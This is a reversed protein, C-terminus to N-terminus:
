ASCTRFGALVDRRDPTYFNRYQNRALRSRTPFAGGRLVRHTGGFWPESYEKYPDASFGPFPEFDSATWEWVNGLMQRCGLASDGAPLLNVAIPETHRLDLNAREATPPEDGWPYRRKRPALSAGDPTPECAAAAEWEAETPLRRGAWRCFADAEFWNVHIVPEHPALPVIDRYRRVFWGDGRRNWYVPQKAQLRQRWAWGADSWCERREYGRDNVFLGFDHNTVPARAIQFPLLTISHTWKENDFIFGDDRESGLAFTGGPVAVDGALPGGCELESATSAGAIAVHPTPYGLTQRTYVYAECHMDEHLSSLQLFYALEPTIPLRQTRALVRDLVTQIYDLTEARAPLPLTWRGDHLVNASDYLSDGDPRIPPENCYHRLVWREQFWAAHGIEWVLPNVIALRPGILQQDTLNAVLELTRQRADLLNTALNESNPKRHV